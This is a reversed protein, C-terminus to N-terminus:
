WIFSLYFTKELFVKGFDFISLTLFIALIVGAIGLAIRVIGESFGVAVVGLWLELPTELGFKVRLSLFFFYILFFGHRRSGLHTEVERDNGFSFDNEVRECAFQLNFFGLDVAAGVM